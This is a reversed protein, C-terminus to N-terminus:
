LFLSVEMSDQIIHQSRRLLRESRKSPFSSPMSDASSELSVVENSPDSTNRTNQTENIIKKRKKVSCGSNKKKGM